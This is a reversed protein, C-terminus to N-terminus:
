EPMHKLALAEQAVVPLARILKDVAKAEPLLEIVDSYHIMFRYESRAENKGKRLWAEFANDLRALQGREVAQFNRKALAAVADIGTMPVKESRLELYEPVSDAYGLLKASVFVVLGKPDLCAVWVHVLKSNLDTDSTADVIQSSLAMARRKVEGVNMAGLPDRGLKFRTTKPM